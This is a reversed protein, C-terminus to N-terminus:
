TIIKAIDGGIKQAKEIATENFESRISTKAGANLLCQIIYEDKKGIAYHLPTLGMDGVANVDAGHEILLDVGFRNQRSAMLHLPTDGMSDKSNVRVKKNPAWHPFLSVKTSELIEELSQRQKLNM